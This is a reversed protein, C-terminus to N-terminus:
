GRRRDHPCPGRHLHNQSANAGVPTYDSIYLQPPLTSTSTNPKLFDYYGAKLWFTPDTYSKRALFRPPNQNVPYEVSVIGKVYTDLDYTHDGLATTISYTSIRPFHISLDRVAQNIWDDIQLQTFTAYSPDGLLGACQQEIDALTLATM